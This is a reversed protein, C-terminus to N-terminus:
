QQPKYNVILQFILQELTIKRFKPKLECEWKIIVNWGKKKLVVENRMDRQITSEIKSKWWETRTKPIVAYKCDKHGHWFCGNVMIVTKYKPLVIDPKGELDKGHLRYRFGQSFLYRRVIIEPDTDKGKIQSMNYSRTGKDHVDGM